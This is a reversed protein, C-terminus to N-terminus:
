RAGRPAADAGAAMLGDARVYEARVADAGAICRRASAQMAEMALGLKMRGVEDVAARLAESVM